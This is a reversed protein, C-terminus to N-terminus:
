HVKFFSFNIFALSFIKKLSKWINGNFKAANESKQWIFVIKESNEEGNLFRTQLRVQWFDESVNM